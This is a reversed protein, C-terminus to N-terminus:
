QQQVAKTPKFLVGGYQYGYLLAAAEGAM